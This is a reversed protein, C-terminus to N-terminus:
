EKWAPDFDPHDSYVAALLRMLHEEDPYSLDLDAVIKRKAAVERLVRDNVWQIGDPDPRVHPWHPFPVRAAAEDEDIRATLFKALDM